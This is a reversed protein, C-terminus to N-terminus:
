KSVIQAAIKLGDAASSVIGGARGSGEGVIFLNEYGSFLKDPHRDVQVPSSTKSELGLIIGSEYGKLKLCFNQLGQRLAPLIQKPFLADFDTEFIGLPYSSEPLKGPQKRSLFGSITMAPVSYDKRINYFSCELSELWELAESASVPRQLIKELNFGAVIGANAWKSNRKYNSMGNVVSTHPYAASPVVIGGPCMCFSYVPLGKDTEASLRYEAAKVGPLSSVGWQANNIVEQLHEARFGLAFNKSRFPIGHRILMRYTEYSSHGTAIIFYDANLVGGTTECSSIRGSSTSLDILRNEFLIECGLNLLEKRLNGTIDFLNDSGLHPHTMYAIEDPAGAGIMEDFIYNREASISKTRSTLKGDSFTGAGGEGFSYNNLPDFIGSTELTQIAKKRKGVMSGQELLTVRFGSRSLFLASFIGAPGSGAIVVHEKRKRFVPKLSVPEPIVGLKLEESVIGIRYLWVIQNKKRADLSKKLIRYTFSQLRTKGSIFRFLEKESVSIPVRIDIEKYGM